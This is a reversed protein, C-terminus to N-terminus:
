PALVAVFGALVGPIPGGGFDIWEDLDGVIAVAAGDAAVLASEDSLPGGFRESWRHTGGPTYSAVFVDSGGASTLDGGGLNTTGKFHGTVVVAGNGDVAVATAVDWLTGGHRQSWRHAGDAAYSAVFVDNEGASTLDSGGFNVIGGFNGVVFLDGSADAAVGSGVDSGAGGYRASWRHAGDGAAYSAIFVDYGVSTLDGGGFDATGSFDGTVVVNGSADFAVANGEDLGVGGHRVSWGPAGVASYTAVCRWRGRRAGAGGEGVWGVEV